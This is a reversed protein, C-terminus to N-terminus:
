RRAIAQIAKLAAGTADQVCEAVNYPKRTCGAGVLGPRGSDAPIFGYEDTVVGEPLAETNPAMGTALVVLDASLRIQEGKATDEGELILNGTEEDAVINAIKSKVFALNDIEQANQYFEDLRDQARIDIFLIYVKAKPDQELVYGAQKISALCCVGSCYPLYNLDRSGACQIFAVTKPAKGDSPRLIKGDTPGDASSLREMQLNSIVNPYRGFGYYEVKAADFPDWGTAWVVAGVDLEMTEPKAELDVADYACVEKVKEAEETGIISPDMVYRCPYALAHPLYVAKTKSLGLEFPNDVETEVVEACKGCATCNENIYRPGMEITATFDGAEGEVKTVRADTFFRVLRNAKARRFNIELGCAPPCLKPFYQDLQAVRGGLYPNKEVVVAEYGAEAAELAASLGSMGGGVVLIRQHTSREDAM